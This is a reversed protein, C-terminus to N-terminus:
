MHTMVINKFDINKKFTVLVPKNDKGLRKSFGHRLSKNAQLGQSAASYGVLGLGVFM